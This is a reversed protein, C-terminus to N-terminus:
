LTHLQADSLLPRPDLNGSQNAAHDPAHLPSAEPKPKRMEIQWLLNTPLFLKSPGLFTNTSKLM